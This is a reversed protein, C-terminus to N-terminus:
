CICDQAGQITDYCTLCQWCCYSFAENHEHLDQQSIFSLLCVKCKFQYSDVIERDVACQMSGKKLGRMMEKMFMVDDTEEPFSMSNYHGRFSASLSVDHSVHLQPIWHSILSTPIGDVSFSSIPDQSSGVGKCRDCALQGREGLLHEANFIHLQTSCVECVMVTPVSVGSLESTPVFSNNPAYYASENQNNDILTHLKEELMIHRKKANELDKEWVKVEKMHDKYISLKEEEFNVRNENMVMGLTNTSKRLTEHQAVLENFANERDKVADQLASITSKAEELKNLIQGHKKRLIVLEEEIASSRDSTNYNDILPVGSKDKAVSKKLSIVASFPSVEIHYNLCSSQIVHLINNFSNTAVMTADSDALKDM